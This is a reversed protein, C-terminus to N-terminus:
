VIRFGAGTMPRTPRFLLKTALGVAEAREARYRLAPIAIVGQDDRLAPLTAHAAPPVAALVPGTIRDRIAAL